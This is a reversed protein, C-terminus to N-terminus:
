PKRAIIEAVLRTHERDTARGERYHLIEWGEFYEALQGAQACFRSHERAPDFLHVIALAIGGPKVGGKLPEFLNPQLYYCV